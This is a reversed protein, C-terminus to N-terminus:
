NLMKTARVFVGSVQKLQVTVKILIEVWDNAQLQLNQIM